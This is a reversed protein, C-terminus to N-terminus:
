QNQIKENLDNLYVWRDMKEELANEAQQKKEMLEKLKVSNTANKLMEEDLSEIKSELKAIDDDISEFEKQENYTFKLKREREKWTKKSDSKQSNEDGQFAEGFANKASM